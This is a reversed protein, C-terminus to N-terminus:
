EEERHKAILTMLEDAEQQSLKRDGFFSVLFGPLSGAFDREVVRRSEFAQVQAQPILATVISNDNQAFGRECLKKLVTYTTSKKWGFDEGALEVLRRSTVPAHEWILQMFRHDSECLRLEDM